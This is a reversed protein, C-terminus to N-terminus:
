GPDAVVLEHLEAPLDEDGHLQDPDGRDGDDPHEVVLVVGAVDGRGDDDREAQQDEGSQPGPAAGRGPGPRLLRGFVLGFQPGAALVRHVPAEGHRGHGSRVVAAAHGRLVGTELRGLGGLTLLNGTSSHSLGTLPNPTVKWVINLFTGVTSYGSTLAGVMGRKWPRWWSLRQGSPRSFHMPQSSHAQAQGASAM